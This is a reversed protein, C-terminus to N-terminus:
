SQLVSSNLVLNNAETASGTFVVSYSSASGGLLEILKRRALDLEKSANFAPMYKASPNYFGDVLKKKVIEASTELCPTTSANDLFIM